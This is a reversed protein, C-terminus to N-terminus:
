WRRKRISNESKLLDLFESLINNDCEKEHEESKLSESVTKDLNRKNTESEIFFETYFIMRKIGEIKSLQHKGAKDSNFLTSNIKSAELEEKLISKLFKLDRKADSLRGM